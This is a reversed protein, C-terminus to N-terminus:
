FPQGVQLRLLESLHDLFDQRTPYASTSYDPHWCRIAILFPSPVAFKTKRNANAVLFAADKAWFDETPRRMRSTVVNTFKVEGQHEFKWAKEFGGVLQLFDAMYHVRRWEGDSVVDLGAQEQLRIAFRVADDLATEAAITDREAGASGVSRAASAARALDQVLAPRPLSGIGMTFFRPLEGSSGATTSAACVTSICPLQAGPSAHSSAPGPSTCCGCGGVFPSFTVMRDMLIVSDTDVAAAAFCQRPPPPLEPARATPLIPRVLEGLLDRM